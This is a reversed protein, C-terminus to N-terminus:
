EKKGTQAPAEPQKADPAINPVAAMTGNQATGCDKKASLQDLHYKTFKEYFIDGIPFLRVVMRKAGEAEIDGEVGDWGIIHREALEGILLERFLADRVDQNDLDMDRRPVLGAAVVDSVSVEMRGFVDQAANRAVDMAFTDLPTVTFKIGPVIDIDFPEDPQSLSIM